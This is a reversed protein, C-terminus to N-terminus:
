EQPFDEPPQQRDECIAQAKEVSTQPRFHLVAPIRIAACVADLEAGRKYNGYISVALLALLLWIAPHESFRAWFRGKLM